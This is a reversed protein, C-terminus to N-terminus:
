ADLAWFIETSIGLSQLREQIGFAHAAGVIALITDDSRHHRAILALRRAMLNDRWHVLAVDFPAPDDGSAPTSRLAPEDSCYGFRKFPAMYAAQEFFDGRRVIGKVKRLDHLTETAFIQRDAPGLTLLTLAMEPLTADICYLPVNGQYALLAGALMAGGDDSGTMGKRLTQTQAM